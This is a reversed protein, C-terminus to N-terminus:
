DSRAHALVAAEVAERLQDNRLRALVPGVYGRVALWEAQAPTFGRSQLYYLEEKDVRSITAGHTCRVDYTKIEMGPISDARAEKSLLLNNNAQYSNSQGATDDITIMGYFVSRGRDRLVGKYMLNSFTHDAIHHQHTENDIHRRGDLLSLGWMECSAGPAPMTGEVFSKVLGAGMAFEVYNFNADRGLRARVTKFAATHLGWDQVFAYDLTGGDDVFADVTAGAVAIADATASAQEDVFQVRAGKGVMVSTHVYASTNAQTMWLLSHLPLAVELGDPVYLFNGGRWLAGQLAEFKALSTGTREGILSQRVLDSHDRVAAEMSTFLVGASNLDDNLSNSQHRGDAQVNQGGFDVGSLLSNALTAAAGAQGNSEAAPISAPDLGRLDTRRWKEDTLAPAPLSDHRALSALRHEALWGPESRTASLERVLAEDAVRIATSTSM